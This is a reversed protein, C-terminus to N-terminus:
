IAYLSIVSFRFSAFAALSGAKDAYEDLRRAFVVTM